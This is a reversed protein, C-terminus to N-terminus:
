FYITNVNYAHSYKLYKSKLAIQDTRSLAIISSNLHGFGYTSNIIMVKEPSFTKAGGRQLADFWVQEWLIIHKYNTKNNIYKLTTESFATNIM